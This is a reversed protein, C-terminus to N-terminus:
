NIRKKTRTNKQEYENNLTNFKNLSMGKNNLEEAIEQM